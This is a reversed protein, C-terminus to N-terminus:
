RRRTILPPPAIVEGVEDVAYSPDPKRKSLIEWAPSKIFQDRLQKELERLKDKPGSYSRNELEWIGDLV